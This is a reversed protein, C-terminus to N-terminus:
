TFTGRQGQQGWQEGIVVANVYVVISVDITIVRWLQSNYVIMVNTM